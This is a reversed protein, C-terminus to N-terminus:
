SCTISQVRHTRGTRWSVGTCQSGLNSGNPPIRFSWSLLVPSPTTCYTTSGSPSKKLKLAPAFCSFMAAWLHHRLAFVFSFSDSRPHRTTSGATRLQQAADQRHQHCSLVGDTRMVRAIMVAIAKARGSAGTMMKMRDAMRDRPSSSGLTALFRLDPDCPQKMIQLATGCQTHLTPHAIARRMGSISWAMHKFSCSCRMAM